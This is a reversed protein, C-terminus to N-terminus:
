VVIIPCRDPGMAQFWGLTYDNSEQRLTWVKRAVEAATFFSPPPTQRDAELLWQLSRRRLEPEVAECAAIFCPWLLLAPRSSDNTTAKDAFDLVRRVTDQLILANINHIRRYYFLILGQHMALSDYRLGTHKSTARPVDSGTSGIDSSTKDWSLIQHELAKTRLNLNTAIEVDVVTDRNLLEQENAFRITHSLLGMLSEPLGYMEPFLTHKWGGMLELHIDNYGSELTKGFGADLDSTTSHDAVRFSRLSHYSAEISLLSSKPRRPCISVLACGCTSEAMIRLYTYVHHLSRVKLSKHAKPLGRRRILLEAEILLNQARHYQGRFIEIMVTSLLAMLLEKYKVRSEGAVEEKLAFDLHQRAKTEYSNRLTGWNDSRDGHFEIHLASVALLSFLLALSTHSVPQRLLLEAYTKKASPLQITHWPSNRVGRLSLVPSVHYETYYRLLEPTKPPVPPCMSNNESIDLSVPTTPIPLLDPSTIQSSSNRIPSHTDMSFNVGLSATLNTANEDSSSPDVPADQVDSEHVHHETESALDRGPNSWLSDPIQQLREGPSTTPRSQDSQASPNDISLDLLIGFPGQFFSSVKLRGAQEHCALWADLSDLAATAKKRGLSDTTARTMFEQQSQFVRDEAEKSPSQSSGRPDQTWKLQPTYGSCSQGNTLCM